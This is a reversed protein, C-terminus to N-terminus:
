VQKQNNKERLEFIFDCDLVNAMAKLVSLSPTRKGTEYDSVRQIAAKDFGLLQGFVQQTLGRKKRFERIQQNITM